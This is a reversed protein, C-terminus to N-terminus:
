GFGTKLLSNDLTPKEPFILLFHMYHYKMGGSIELEVAELINSTVNCKIGNASVRKSFLQPQHM